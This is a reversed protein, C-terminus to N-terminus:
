DNCIEQKIPKILLNGEETLEIKVENGADINHYRLWDKPLSVHRTYNMAKIKRNGFSFVNIM